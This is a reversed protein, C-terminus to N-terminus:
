YQVQFYQQGNGLVGGVVIDAGTMAGNHSLGFGIFGTTEATIFFEVTQARLDVEWEVQYRPHLIELRKLNQGLVNASFTLLVAFCICLFRSFTM